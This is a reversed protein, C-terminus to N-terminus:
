GVESARFFIAIQLILYKSQKLFQFIDVAYPRGSLYVRGVSVESIQSKEVKMKHSEMQKIHQNGTTQRKM